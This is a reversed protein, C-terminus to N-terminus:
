RRARLLLGITRLMILADLLLSQHRIYYLDYQLKTLSDGVSRGYGFRVQAWGTLGPAVALRTRYFPIQATLMAVFYPREPRPGVISMAGTLVNWLQPAEDLRTRRLFRGVRTVRSDDDASWIPGSTREADAIMTRLKVLSFPRGGRGLREQRYFIPGPSDRRILLAVIPLALGFAALGILALAIDILRKAALYFRRAEATGELPLIATWDGQGVHEIPVRGTLREYLVPMPTMAVGLEYCAMLGEFIDAPMEGSHTLILEQIGHAAVLTPLTRGDGLTPIPLPADIPPLLPDVAAGGKIAGILAYREIAVAEITGVILAAGWGTGVVLARRRPLPANLAPGWRHWGLVLVYLVAAYYVIFWRPLTDPAAFFYAVVYVGLMQVHMQALRITTRRFDALIAPDYFANARALALWLVPLVAFWLGQTMLFADDFPILGARSWIYLAANVAILNLAIDGTVILVQRPASRDIM